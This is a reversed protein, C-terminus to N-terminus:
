CYIGNMLGPGHAKKVIDCPFEGMKDHEAAKPTIEERTFKRALEQMQRQEETINFNFGGVPATSNWRAVSIARKTIM